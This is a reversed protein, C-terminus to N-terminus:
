TSHWAVPVMSPSEISSAASLRTNGVAPSVQTSPESLGLM